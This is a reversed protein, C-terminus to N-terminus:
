LSQESKIHKVVQAIARQFGIKVRGAVEEKAEGEPFPLTANSKLWDQYPKSEKLELYTKNEFRGFDTEKLEEICQYSMNPFLIKCTQVARLMPSSYLVDPKPYHRQKVQLIGAESLVENTTGIYRKQENGQTAAHRILQIKIM